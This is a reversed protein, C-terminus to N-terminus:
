NNWKVEREKGRTPTWILDQALARLNKQGIPLSKLVDYVCVQASDHCNFNKEIEFHSINRRSYKSEFHLSSFCITHFLVASLSRSIRGSSSNIIKKTATKPKQWRWFPKVSSLKNKKLANVKWPKNRLLHKFVVTKIGGELYLHEPINHDRSPCHIKYLCEVHIEMRYTYQM